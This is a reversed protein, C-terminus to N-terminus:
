RCIEPVKGSKLRTDFKLSLASGVKFKSSATHLRMAFKFDNSFDVEVYGNKGISAFMKDPYNVISFRLVKVEDKTIIVKDFCYNGVLFKFYNEAMSSNRNIEIVVRNCVREYLSSIISKEKSKVDSFKYEKGESLPMVRKVEEIFLREIEKIDERYASIKNPDTLGLQSCLAGPRQHKVADHNHKLSINYKRGTSLTIRIDTPDGAVGHADTLRTILVVEEAEALDLCQPLLEKVYAVCQKDFYALKNEALESYKLRDRNQQIQTDDCVVAKPYEQSIVQTLRYELARGVANSVGM